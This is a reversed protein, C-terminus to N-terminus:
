IRAYLYFPIIQKRKNPETVYIDEAATCHSCQGILNLPTYLPIYIINDYWYVYIYIKINFIYACYAYRGRSVQSGRERNPPQKYHIRLLKIYGFDDVRACYM